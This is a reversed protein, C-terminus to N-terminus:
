VSLIHFSQKIYKRNGYQCQGAALLFVLRCQLVFDASFPSADFERSVRAYIDVEDAVSCEFKVLLKVAVAEFKQFTM